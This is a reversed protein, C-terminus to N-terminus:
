SNILKKLLMERKIPDYQTMVLDIIYYKVIDICSVLNDKWLSCVLPHNGLTQCEPSNQAELFEKSPSILYPLFSM